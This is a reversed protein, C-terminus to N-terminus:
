SRQGQRRLGLDIQAAQKVQHILVAPAPLQGVRVGNVQHALAASTSADRTRQVDPFDPQKEFLQGLWVVRHNKYRCTEAKPGALDHPQLPAVEVPSLEHQQHFSAHHVAPHPLGFGLSGLKRKGDVRTQGLSELFLPSAVWVLPRLIPYKRVARAPCAPLLANEPSLELRCGHPGADALDAPVREAVGIGFHQPRRVDIELYLLLQQPVRGDLARQIHIGLCDRVLLPLCVAPHHPAHQSRLDAAAGSFRPRRIPGLPYRHCSLPSVMFFWFHHLRNLKLITAPPPNTGWDSMSEESSVSEVITRFALFPWFPLKKM